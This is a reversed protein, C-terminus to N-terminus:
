TKLIVDLYKERKQFINGFNNRNGNNDGGNPKDKDSKWKGCDNKHQGGNGSGGGSGRFAEIEENKRSRRNIVLYLDSQSSTINQM